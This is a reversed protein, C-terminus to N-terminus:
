LNYRWYLFAGVPEGGPLDGVRDLAHELGISEDDFALLFDEGRHDRELFPTARESVSENGREADLRTSRM